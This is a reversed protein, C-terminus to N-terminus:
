VKKPSRPPTVPQVMVDRDVDARHALGTKWMPSNGLCGGIRTAWRVAGEKAEHGQDLGQGVGSAWTTAM